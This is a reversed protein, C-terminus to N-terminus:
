KRSIFWGRVQRAIDNNAAAILGEHRRGPQGLRLPAGQTDTLIGGAEALVLMPAAVDWDRPAMDKVFLDASRDAIRCIKLAISGSEIYKGIHLAQLLEKAIGRPEPYNDILSEAAGKAGDLSLRLGNRYAGGASLAFFYEDSAPAYIGVFVPRGENIYAAQTVWGAFGHAFSATGDIPDIIFHDGLCAGTSAADEESVVPAGPFAGRLEGILFDHALKDAAAKFQDGRWEGDTRGAALCNMLMAGCDRLIKELYRADALSPIM